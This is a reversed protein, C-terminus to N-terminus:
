RIQDFLEHVPREFRRGTRSGEAAIETPGSWGAVRDALHELLVEALVLGCGAGHGSRHRSGNWQTVSTKAARKRPPKLDPTITAAHASRPGREM